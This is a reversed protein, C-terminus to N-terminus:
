FNGKGLIGPYNLIFTLPFCKNFMYQPVLYQRFGKLLHYWKLYYYIYFYIFYPYLANTSPFPFSGLFPFKQLIQLIQYNFKYM